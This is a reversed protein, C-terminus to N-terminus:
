RPKATSTPLPADPSVNSALMPAQAAVNADRIIRMVMAPVDGGVQSPNNEVVMGMNLMLKRMKM